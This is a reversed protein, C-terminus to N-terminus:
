CGAIKREERSHDLPRGKSFGEDPLRGFLKQTPNHAIDHVSGSCAEKRLLSAVAGICGFAVIFVVFGFVM